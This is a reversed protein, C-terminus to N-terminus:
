HLENDLDYMRSIYELNSQLEDSSMAKILALLLEDTGLDQQIQDAIDVLENKDKTMIIVM